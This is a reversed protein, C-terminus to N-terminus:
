NRRERIAQLGDAYNKDDQTTFNMNSKLNFLRNPQM